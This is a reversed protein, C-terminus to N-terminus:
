NQQFDCNSLSHGQHTVISDQSLKGELRSDYTRKFPQIRVAEAMVKGDSRPWVQAFLAIPHLLSQRFSSLRGAAMFPDM